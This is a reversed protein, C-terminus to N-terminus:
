KWPRPNPVPYKWKIKIPRVYLQSDSNKNIRKLADAQPAYFRKLSCGFIGFAPDFIYEGNDDMVQGYLSVRKRLRRTKQAPMEPSNSQPPTADDDDDNDLKSSVKSPRKETSLRELSSTKSGVRHVLTTRSAKTKSLRPAKGSKAPEVVITDQSSKSHLKVLRKRRPLAVGEAHHVKPQDAATDAGPADDLEEVEEDSSEVTEEPVKQMCAIFVGNGSDSPSIKLCEEYEYEETRENIIEPLVCSLEWTAGMRDMIEEVVQENEEQHTSRTIYLITKVSPLQLAHKIMNYQQRKLSFLDKQTHQDYPFEEEQLLYGLKDIISTGSNPPEIVVVSVQSYLPDRVDINMFDMDVAEVNKIGHTKLRSVLTEYRSKRSEFAFIRGKSGLIDALHSTKTGCGARADIVQADPSILTKLHRLGYMSAKDQFILRGEVVPPSLKLAEYYDAPIVLVDDFDFDLCIVDALTSLSCLYGRTLQTDCAGNRQEFGIKGPKMWITVFGGNVAMPSEESGGQVHKATLQVPFGLRKLEDTIKLKSTKVTNIRAMKPMEGAIQERARVEEPLINMLQEVSSSGIAQKEIRIRAFAAALKTRHSKLCEDLEQVMAVRELDGPTPDTVDFRIGPFRQYDFNHKMLQYLFVKVVSLHHLFQNNYVLFQTKVLIIDIYPLYKMTGYVLKLVHDTMERWLEGQSMSHRKTITIGALSGEAVISELVEAAQIIERYSSAVDLDVSEFFSSPKRSSLIPESRAQLPAPSCASGDPVPDSASPAPALASESFFPRLGDKLLAFYGISPAQIPGTHQAELVFHFVWHSKWVSASRKVGTSPKHPQETRIVYAHDAGVSGLAPQNEALTAADVGAGFHQVAANFRQIEEPLWQGKRFKPNIKTWRDWCQINTRTQVHLAVQQWNSEGFRAVAERLRSDEDSTFPRSSSIARAVSNLHLDETGSWWIWGIRDACGTQAHMDEAVQLWNREQHAIAIRQLHTKEEPTWAGQHHRPSQCLRWQIECARATRQPFHDRQIETWDLADSDIQELIRQKQGPTLDHLRIEPHTRQHHVLVVKELQLRDAVPGPIHLFDDPTQSLVSHAQVILGTRLRGIAKCNTCATRSSLAHCKRMPTSALLLLTDTNPHPETAAAHGPRDLRFHPPRLHVPTHRKWFGSSPPSEDALVSRYQDGIIESNDLDALCQQLITQLRRNLELAQTIERLKADRDAGSLVSCKDSSEM